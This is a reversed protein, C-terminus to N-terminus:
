VWGKGLIRRKEEASLVLACSEWDVKEVRAYRVEFPHEKPLAEIIQKAKEKEGLALAVWVDELVDPIQGFLSHIDHLRDSLLEGKKVRAKIMERSVRRWKGGQMIGSTTPGSYLAIPEDPFELTLQEALWQISDRYQSFVICGLDLWGHQKLYEVVVAYKPDREQNAELAAVFQEM